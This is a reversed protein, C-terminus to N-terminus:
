HEQEHGARGAERGAPHRHAEAEDLLQRFRKRQEEGLIATIKENTRTRVALLKSDYEERGANIQRRSEELIAKLQATQETSLQLRRALRETQVPPATLAATRGPFRMEWFHHVAGGLFLGALLLAIMVALARTRSKM